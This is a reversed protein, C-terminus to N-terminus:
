APEEGGQLPGVVFTLSRVTGPGLVRGANDLLTPTLYRLQTAWAHSEARILLTGGAIRVPECRTALDPGVIRPWAGFVQGARLRDGWGRSRVYSDLASGLQSPARVRHVADSEEDAAVWEDAGPPAPDFAARDQEARRRAEGRRRRDYYRDDRDVQRARRPDPREPM